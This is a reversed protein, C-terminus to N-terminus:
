MKVFTLTDNTVYRLDMCIISDTGSFTYSFQLISDQFINHSSNLFIFLTDSLFRWKGAVEQLFSSSCGFEPMTCPTDIFGWEFYGM